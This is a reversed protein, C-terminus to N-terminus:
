FSDVTIKKGNNKVLRFDAMSKQIVFGKALNIKSWLTSFLLRVGNHEIATNNLLSVNNRIKEHFTGTRATM